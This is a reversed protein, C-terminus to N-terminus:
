IFFEEDRAGVRSRYSAYRKNVLPNRMLHGLDGIFQSLAPPILISNNNKTITLEVNRGPIQEEWVTEKSFSEPDLGSHPYQQSHRQKAKKTEEVQVSILITTRLKFELV